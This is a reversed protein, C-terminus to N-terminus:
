IMTLIKTFYMWLIVSVDAAKLSAMPLVINKLYTDVNDLISIYRINKELFYIEIYYNAEFSNRSLRSLDKTIVTNVVGNEIDKLMRQFNPRDTNLGTYGDDIYLDFLEYDSGLEKIKNEIIGKQSVISDSEEKDGDEKSLRLYGAVKYKGNQM